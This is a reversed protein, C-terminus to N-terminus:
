GSRAVLALGEAELYCDPCAWLEGVMRWDKPHILYDPPHSEVRECSLCVWEDPGQSLCRPCFYITEMEDEGPPGPIPVDASRYGVGSDGCVDCEHTQDVRSLLSEIKGLLTEAREIANHARTMTKTAGSAVQVAQALIQPWPQHHAPESWLEPYAEALLRDEAELQAPTRPEEQVLDQCGQCIYEEKWPPFIM